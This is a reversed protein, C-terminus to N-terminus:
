QSLSRLLEHVTTHEKLEQRLEQAQQRLEEALETKAGTHLHKSEKVLSAVDMALFLGTAAVGMIRAGKTMALTTGGFAKQVRWYSRTSTSGASTFRAASDVLRPNAKAVRIARVTSRITKQAQFCKEANSAIKPVNDRLVEAMVKEKDFSTSASNSAKAKASSMSTHDVISTSVSTVAAAAGLAVGVGSCALSVGATVPALTLGLITLLGSVTSTTTAVVNSITCNKHTKDVEDALAHLEGIRQELEMKVRPFANLLSDRDLRPQHLMDDKRENLADRLMEAEDRSLRAEAVFSSWARNDALLRQLEERSVTVQLAEIVNELFSESEAEKSM